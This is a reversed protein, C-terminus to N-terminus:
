AAETKSATSFVPQKTRARLWARVDGLRYGIRTDTLMVFPPGEGRDRMKRPENRNTGLLAALESQNIVVDDNSFRKPERDEPDRLLWELRLRDSM